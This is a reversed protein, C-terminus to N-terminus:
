TTGAALQSMRPYGRQVLDLLQRAVQALDADPGAPDTIDYTLQDAMDSILHVKGRAPPFESLIAEKHGQEMVVILDVRSLDLADIPCTAHRTLDLGLSRAVRIADPFPPLGAATWTGASTVDWEGAAGEQELRRLFAAAAIPSRYQNGTCVFLVSPM